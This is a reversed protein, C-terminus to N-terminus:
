LGWRRGKHQQGQRLRTANAAFGSASSELEESKKVVQQARGLNGRALDVTREAAMGRGHKPPSPKRAEKEAVHKEHGAVGVSTLPPESSGPVEIPERRSASGRRSRAEYLEPKAAVEKTFFSAIGKGVWVFPRAIFRGVAAFGRGIARLARSFGSPEVEMDSPFAGEQKAPKKTNTQKPKSSKAFTESVREIGATKEEMGRVLPELEKHDAKHRKRVKTQQAGLQEKARRQEEAERQGSM